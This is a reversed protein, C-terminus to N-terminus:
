LRSTRSFHKQLQLPHNTFILDVGRSIEKFLASPREIFGTGTVLGAERAKKLRTSNLLLFHGSVGGFGYQLTAELTAEMNMWDVSLVVKKDFLQLQSLAKPKLTLLWYHKQGQLPKLIEFLKKEQDATLFPSGTLHKSQDTKIEILLMLKKAFRDVVDRLHLIQPALQQLQNWTLDAIKKDSFPPLRKLDPDHHVVPEGDATFQVDFEIGWIQNEAALEFARLSNELAMGNEHVGRHAVLKPPTVLSGSQAPARTTAGWILNAISNAWAEILNMGFLKPPGNLATL